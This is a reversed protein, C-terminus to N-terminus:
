LVVPSGDWHAAAQADQWPSTDLSRRIPTAGAGCKARHAAQPIEWVDKLVYVRPPLFDLPHEAM